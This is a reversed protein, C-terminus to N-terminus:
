KEVVKLKISKRLNSATLGGFSLISKSDFYREWLGGLLNQLIM